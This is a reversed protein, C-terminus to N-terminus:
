EDGGDVVGSHKIRESVVFRDCRLPLWRNAAPIVCTEGHGLFKGMQLVQELNRILHKLEDVQLVSKLRALWLLM